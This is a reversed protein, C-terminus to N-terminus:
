YAEMQFLEHLGTHLVITIHGTLGDAPMLCAQVDAAVVVNAQFTGNNKDNGKM